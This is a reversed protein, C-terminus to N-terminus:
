AARFGLRRVLRHRLQQPIVAVAELCRVFRDLSRLVAVAVRLELVDVGFRLVAHIAARRHDGDVRLLLFFSSIPLKL